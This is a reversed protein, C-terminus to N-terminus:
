VRLSHTYLPTSLSSYKLDSYLSPMTFSPIPLPYPAHNRSAYTKLTKKGLFTYTKLLLCFVFFNEQKRSTTGVLKWRICHETTLKDFPQSRPSEDPSLWSVLRQFDDRSPLLSFYDLPKHSISSRSLMFHSPLFSDQLQLHKQNNNKSNNSLCIMMCSHHTHSSSTFYHQLHNYGSTVGTHHCNGPEKYHKIGSMCREVHWSEKTKWPKNRKEKWVMCCHPFSFSGKILYHIGKTNKCIGSQTYSFHWQMTPGPSWLILVWFYFSVQNLIFHSETGKWHSFIFCGRLM